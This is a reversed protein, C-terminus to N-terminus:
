HFKASADGDTHGFQTGHDDVVGDAGNRILLHLLTDGNDFLLRLLNPQALACINSPSLNDLEM